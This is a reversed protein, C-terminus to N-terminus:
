CYQWCSSAPVHTCDGGRGNQSNYMYLVCSVVASARDTLSFSLEKIQVHLKGGDSSM